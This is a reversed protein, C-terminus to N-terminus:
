LQANKKYRKQNTKLITGFPFTRCQTPRKEYVSCQKKNLDFFICAYNNENVKIEKISYKYKVKYLYKEKLEDTSIKLFNALEEIEKPNIWIYGSDGVCCNGDCQSCINSNFSFNFGDQTMKINQM